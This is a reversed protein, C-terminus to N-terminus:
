VILVFCTMGFHIEIIASSCEFQWQGSGCNCQVWQVEIWFSYVCQIQIYVKVSHQLTPTPFLTNYNKFVCTHIFSNKKERWIIQSSNKVINLFPLWILSLQKKYFRYFEFHVHIKKLAYKKVLIKLLFHFRCFHEFHEM